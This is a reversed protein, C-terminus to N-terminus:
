EQWEPPLDSLSTSSKPTEIGHALQKAKAQLKKAILASFDLVHNARDEFDGEAAEFLQPGFTKVMAQLVISWQREEQENKYADQKKSQTEVATNTRTQVPANATVDGPATWDLVFFSPRGEQKVERRVVTVEEGPQFHRLTEEEREKAYHRAERGDKEFIYLTQMRGTPQKTAYDTEPYTGSRKRMRVVASVNIDLLDRLYPAKEM